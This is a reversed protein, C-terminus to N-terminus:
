EQYKVASKVGKTKSRGGPQSDSRTTGKLIERIREAVIRDEGPLLTWVAVELCGEENEPRVEISPDGDRLLQCADDPTLEILEENWRIRLHPSHSAIKPAFRETTVGPITGVGKRIRSVSTEWQRWEKDHDRQLYSELAVMLALVEEKNVKMGRGISNAHPAAHLRAAEILHKKGLLLGTSQPGLLAKGGSFAVLDFGMEQFSFLNEAPPVDAACDILTPVTHRRGLDAFEAAQIQGFPAKKNLFLMMATRDTLRSELDGVTEVELLRVGCNRVAHDYEFRHAKQILVESPMGRTDPLREIWDQRDGTVCAATGLTLAAAAGATVLADDCELLDAIRQGVADHLDDLRVYHRCAYHWAQQVEPSMLSATVSTYHGAANIVPRVELERFYDREQVSRPKSLWTGLVPLFSFFM